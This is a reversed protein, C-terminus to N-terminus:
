PVLLFRLVKNKCYFQNIVKPSGSIWITPAQQRYLLRHLLLRLTTAAKKVVAAPLYLLALLLFFAAYKKM